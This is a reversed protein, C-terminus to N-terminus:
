DGFSRMRREVRDDDVGRMYLVTTAWTYRWSRARLNMFVRDNVCYLM